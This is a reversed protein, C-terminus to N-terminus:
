RVVKRKRDSFPFIIFQDNVIGPKNTLDTLTQLNQPNSAKYSVFMILINILTVHVDAGAMVRVGPHSILKIDLIFRTGCNM